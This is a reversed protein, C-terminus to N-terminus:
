KRQQRASRRGIRDRHRPEQRRALQTFVAHEVLADLAESAVFYAAAEVPPGPRRPMDRNLDHDSSGAAEVGDAPGHLPLLRAAIWPELLAAPDSPRM